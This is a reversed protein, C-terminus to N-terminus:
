LAKKKRNKNCILVTNYISMALAVISMLSLIILAIIGPTSAIFKKDDPDDFLHNDEDGHNPECEISNTLKFIKM